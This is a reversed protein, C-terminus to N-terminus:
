ELIKEGIRRYSSNMTFHALVDLPVIILPILILGAATAIWGANLIDPMEGTAQLSVILLVARNIIFSPFLVSALMQWCFTDVAGLTGPIAGGFSDAGKKGKDVTDALIYAVAIVYTAYVVEVPVLPRFAEGVENAYGCYRLLSDRYIDVEGDVPEPQAIGEEAVESFEELAFGGAIMSAAFGIQSILLADIDEAEEAIMQIMDFPAFMTPSHARTRAALAPRLAPAAALRHASAADSLLLLLLASMKTTM